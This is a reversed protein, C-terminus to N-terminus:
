NKWFHTFFNPNFGEEILKEKRVTAKGAKNYLKLVRRNLKLQKDISTFLKDANGKALKYHYSSKCYTSCFKKDNRGIVPENCNPCNKM